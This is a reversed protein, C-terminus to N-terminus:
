LSDDYFPQCDDADGKAGLIIRVKDELAQVSFAFAECLGVKDTIKEEQLYMGILLLVHMTAIPQRHLFCESLLQILEYTM